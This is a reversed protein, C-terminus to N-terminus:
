LVEVEWAERQWASLQVPPCSPVRSPLQAVMKQPVSTTHTRTHKPTHKHTHTHARQRPRVCTGFAFCTVGASNLVDVGTTRACKGMKAACSRRHVLGIDCQVPCLVILGIQKHWSIQSLGLTRPASDQRQHNNNNNTTTNNTNHHNRDWQYKTLQPEAMDPPPM